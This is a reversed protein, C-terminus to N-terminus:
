HERERLYGIIKPNFGAKLLEEETYGDGLLESLTEAQEYPFVIWRDVIKAHYDPKYKCWPKLYVTCTTVSEAGREVLHQLAIRLTHGTDAVDDVLLVRLGELNMGVDSVIRPEAGRVGVKEYYSITLSALKRIGILDSLIRAAVLGGRAIAVMVDFRPRQIRRALTIIDDTLEEWSILIVRM